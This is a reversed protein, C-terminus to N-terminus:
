CSCLVCSRRTSSHRCGGPYFGVAARYGPEPLIVGRRRAREHSPGNIAAMSFVGGNSWGIVGIHERDVYPRSALYRFAGVADDFRETNPVDPSSFSCNETLGRPTWSDVPLAM